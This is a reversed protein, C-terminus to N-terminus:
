HCSQEIQVVLTTPLQQNTSDERTNAIYVIYCTLRYVYYM